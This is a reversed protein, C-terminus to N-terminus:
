RVPGSSPLKAVKESKPATPAATVELTFMPRVAKGQDSDARFGGVVRTEGPKLSLTGKVSNETIGFNRYTKDGQTPTKITQQLQTNATLMVRGDALVRPTMGLRFVMGDVVMVLEGTQASAIDAYGTAMVERKAPAKGNASPTERIVRVGVRVLVRPGDLLQILTRLTKLDADSARVLLLNNVDDPSLTHVGAPVLTDGPGNGTEVLLRIFESPKLYTLPLRTPEAEQAHAVPAACACATLALAFLAISGFRPKRNM